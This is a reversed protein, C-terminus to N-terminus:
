MEIAFFTHATTIRKWIQIKSMNFVANEFHQVAMVQQSESEFKYRQCILYLEVGGVRVDEETTIRKWIQIKSMNFVAAAVQEEYTM